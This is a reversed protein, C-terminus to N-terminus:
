ANVEGAGNCNYCETESQGSGMCEGCSDEEDDEDLPVDYGGDCEECEDEVYGTGDCDPCIVLEPEDM